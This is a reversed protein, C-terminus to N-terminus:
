AHIKKLLWAMNQGLNKMNRIGEEDSLGDGPQLGFLFNWYTSGPIIMETIAFFNNIAAYVSVAGGRRVAIVGAGVKRRLLGGNAGSVFGARDILAKVEASVNGYYTPSGILVGEAAFLKELLSNMDDDKRVCKGDRNRYCMGCGLCGFIKRGGLQILETEIGEREIEDLVMRLGRATNGNPRPSGNFAVVKMDEGWLHIDPTIGNKVHYLM